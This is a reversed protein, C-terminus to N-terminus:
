NAGAALPLGAQQAPNGAAVIAAVDQPAEIQPYHGAGDVMRVQARPLAEAYRAANAPPSIRDNGGWVLTVPATVRHLRHRLAPNHMYPLWAYRATAERARVFDSLAAEDMASFTTRQLEPKEFALAELDEATRTFLDLMDTDHSGSFKVGAPAILVAADAAGPAMTMLELAVWGGLGAGVITCQRWGLRDMVDLHFFAIDDPRRFHPPADKAYAPHVPAVVRGFRALEAVFALEEGIGRESHLYLIPQGDAAGASAMRSSVGAVEIDELMVESQSM